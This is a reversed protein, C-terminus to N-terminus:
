RNSLKKLAKAMDIGKGLVGEFLDGHEKLRAIANGINFDTMKLGKKVEEWHLPMSVPAGPKPRLSYPGAVTAQPRNQLFDIYMKGNRNTTLREISTFDPIQEHVAKAVARGFEKSEEYTYRAGLPIYIHLGTSGSTKCFCSVGIGDLVKKTVRAAETVQDFTNKDPDLDIICWDPHDPTQTRSSWPNIEICGLSAIYLLSAETTCVLFNKERADAESYYQHTSIWSPVKGTVDKQYFSKGYIGNPFRNLTQPRDKYYPLMYPVAQYYYNLMDRKSVNNEPWFIKSLNTFKLDHGDIKRVQTEDSPNLLTKRESTASPASILPQGKSEAVLEEVPVPQEWVVDNPNKDERLGKFSPHRFTGDSALTRYNVEAVLQPRVWKVKAKPPNPRFRSPKNYDPVEPFPCQSTELPKLKKIIDKQVESTFGTGVPGIFEFQGDRYMGLLLASFLKSSKENRTYGGIIVEQQKIAKIKLWDKTRQGPLYFSDAKKGLIGELGMKEAHAILESGPIDFNESLRVPGQLPVVQKLINRRQALPVRMLDFGDLWLIDFLYYVLAGDAESRWTQLANFDPYGKENMVIIEGDVVARINWEELAKRVPYFKDNFKKNNRSRIDVENNQLYSISRFGDWKIEYLWGAADVPKDALTALMPELDEPMRSKKGPAVPALLAATDPRARHLDGARSNDKVALQNEMVKKKVATTKKATKSRSPASSRNSKWERADVDGAMEELTKGSVVSQGQAAIDETSAYEDRHKILLWANDERGRTKVLVFEGKLKEGHLRFKLSGAHFGKLLAKEQATKGIPSELPEYAGHDWIIVTGAGYNGEPIIGEFNKYDYPHDEVLMALRKDAPNLSPGKPVAWSKLVGEMELRFDYHLRSAAHKQVVFHLKSRSGKGGTPEPTKTFSRKKKYEVLGM